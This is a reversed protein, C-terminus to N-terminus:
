LNEWDTQENKYFIDQEWIIVQNTGQFAGNKYIDIGFRHKVMGPISLGRKNM